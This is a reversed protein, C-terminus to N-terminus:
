NLFKMLLQRLEDVLHVSLDFFDYIPMIILEKSGVPYALSTVTLGLHDFYLPFERVKFFLGVFLFKRESSILSDIGQLLRQEPESILGNSQALFFFVIPM